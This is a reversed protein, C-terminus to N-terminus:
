QPHKKVIDTDKPKKSQVRWQSDSAISDAGQNQRKNYIAQLHDLDKKWWKYERMKNLDRETFAQKMQDVCCCSVRQDKANLFKAICMSCMFQTGYCGYM